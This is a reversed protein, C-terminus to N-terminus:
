IGWFYDGFFDDGEDYIHTISDKKPAPDSPIVVEMKIKPREAEVMIGLLWTISALDLQQVEGKKANKLMERLKAMREPNTPALEKLHELLDSLENANM